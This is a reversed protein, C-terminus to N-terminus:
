RSYLRSSNDSSPRNHLYSLISCCEVAATLILDETWAGTEAILERLNPAVLAELVVYVKGNEAFLDLFKVISPHDLRKLLEVESLVSKFIAEKSARTGGSNIILEKIAVNSADKLQTIRDRATAAYVVSFGGYGLVGTVKYAGDKLERGIKLVRTLDSKGESRLDQLWLRTFGDAAISSSDSEVQCHYIEPAIHARLSALFTQKDHEFAFMELPVRICREDEQNEVLRNSAPDLFHFTRVTGDIKLLQKLRTWFPLPTKRVSLELVTSRLRGRYLLQKTTAYLVNEWPIIQSPDWFAFGNEGLYVTDPMPSEVRPSISLLSFFSGLTLSVATVFVSTWALKFIFLFRFVSAVGFEEIQAAVTLYLWFVGLILFFWVIMRILRASVHAWCRLQWIATEKRQISDSSETLKSPLLVIKAFPNSDGDVLISKSTSKSKSKDKIGIKM